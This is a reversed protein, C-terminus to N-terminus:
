LRSLDSSVTAVYFQVHERPALACNVGIVITSLLQCDDGLYVSATV